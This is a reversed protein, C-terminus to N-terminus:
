KKEDFIKSPKDAEGAAAVCLLHGNQFQFGQLHVRQFWQRAGCSAFTFTRQYFVCNCCCYIPWKCVESKAVTRCKKIIDSLSVVRATKVSFFPFSAGMYTVIQDVM